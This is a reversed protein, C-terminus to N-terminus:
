WKTSQTLKSLSNIMKRKWLKFKQAAQLNIQLIKKSM